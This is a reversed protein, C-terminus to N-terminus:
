GREEATVRVDNNIDEKRSNYMYGTMGVETAM